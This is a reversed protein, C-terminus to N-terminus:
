IATHRSCYDEEGHVEMKEDAFSSHSDESECNNYFKLLFIHLMGLPM